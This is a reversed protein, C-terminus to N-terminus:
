QWYIIVHKDAVRYIFHYPFKKVCWKRRMRVDATPRFPDAKLADIAQDVANLFRLGLGSVQEEYFQAAEILEARAQPHFGILM